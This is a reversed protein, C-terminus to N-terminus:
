QVEFYSVDIELVWKMLLFLLTPVWMQQLEQLGLSLFFYWHARAAKRPVLVLVERAKSVKAQHFHPLVDSDILIVVSTAELVDEAM